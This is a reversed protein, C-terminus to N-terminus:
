YSREENDNQTIKHVKEKVSRFIYLEFPKIMINVLEVTMCIYQLDCLWGFVIM